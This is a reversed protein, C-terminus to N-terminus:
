ILPDPISFNEKELKEGGIKDLRHELFEKGKQTRAFIPISQGVTKLSEKNGIERLYKSACGTAVDCIDFLERAESESLGTNHVLFIYINVSPNEKKLKNLEKFNTPYTITVAINKYGKKIALKIGKIQNIECTESNVINETGIQSIIEPIPSTKVLGSVRGGIGQVYESQTLIVTGCGECVMVTSDLVKDEILTSIIESIGFSLYDKMKLVRKPTCMGFDSIRFKINEEIIKKDLKEINRHKHFLPCYNIKPEEVSIIKGNKITIKSRGLAEIIHESM